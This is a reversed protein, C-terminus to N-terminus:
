SQNQLIPWKKPIPLESQMPPTFACNKAVAMVSWNMVVNVMANTPPKIIANGYINQSNQRNTFGAREAFSTFLVLPIIKQTENKNKRPTANPYKIRVGKM